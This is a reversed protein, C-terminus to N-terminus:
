LTIDISIGQIIRYLEVYNSSRNKNNKFGKAKLKEELGISHHGNFTLQHEWHNIVFFDNIDILKFAILLRLLRYSKEM